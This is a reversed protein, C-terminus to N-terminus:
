RYKKSRAAQQRLEKSGRPVHERTALIEKVELWASKWVDTNKFAIMESASRAEEESWDSSEFCEHLARLQELRKQLSQTSMSGLLSAGIPEVFRVFKYDKKM